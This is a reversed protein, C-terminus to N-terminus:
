AMIGVRQLSWYLGMGGILCSIPTALLRRYRAKDGLWWGAIAFCALIVTLQGIEVGINFAILSSMFRDAPVGIDGLVGAFGLGHLSGFVFVISLRAKGVQTRFLNEVCIITISLAILPEVIIAPLSMVGTIGLALTLSHALTFMSVQWFIPKFAPAMLFIGVVFLIHDLGKPIIHKIGVVAYNVFNGLAPYPYATTFNPKADITFIDSQQGATLYQSFGQPNQERIIIPGLQEDWQWRLSKSATDVSLTINSDRPLRADGVPPINVSLVRTVSTHDDEDVIHIRELFGTQMHKFATALSTPSSNRLQQYLAAQASDKANSHEPGIGAVISELNVRLHIQLPEVDTQLEAVVPRLEHAYSFGPTCVTWLMLATMAIWYKIM